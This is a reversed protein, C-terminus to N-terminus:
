HKIDLSTSLLNCHEYYKEIYFGMGGGRKFVLCTPFFKGRRGRTGGVMRAEGRRVRLFGQTGDHTGLGADKLHLPM